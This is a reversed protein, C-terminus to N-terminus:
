DFFFYFRDDLNNVLKNFNERLNLSSNTQGPIALDLKGAFQEVNTIDEGITRLESQLDQSVVKNPSYVTLTINVCQLHKM